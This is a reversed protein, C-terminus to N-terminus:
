EATDVGALFNALANAVVSKIEVDTADLGKEQITPHQLFLLIVRKAAVDPENTRALLRTAWTFRAAHHETSADETLVMKAVAVLAVCLRRLLVPNDRLAYIDNFTTM